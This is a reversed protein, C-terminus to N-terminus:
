IIGIAMARTANWLLALSRSSIKVIVIFLVSTRDNNQNVRAEKWEDAIEEFTLCKRDLLGILWSYFKVRNDM